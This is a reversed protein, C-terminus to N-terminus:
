LRLAVEKLLERGQTTRSGQISHINTLYIVLFKVYFIISFITHPPDILWYGINLYFFFFFSAFVVVWVCVFIYVYRCVSSVNICFVTESNLLCLYLFICSSLIFVCLLSWRHLGDKLHWCIVHSFILFSIFWNYLVLHTLCFCLPFFLLLWLAGDSGQCKINNGIM